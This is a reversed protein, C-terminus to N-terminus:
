AVVGLMKFLVALGFGSASLFLLWAAWRKLQSVDGSTTADVALDLLAVLVCAIFCALAIQLLISM